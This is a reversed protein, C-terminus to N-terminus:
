PQEQVAAVRAAAVNRTVLLARFTWERHPEIIDKYDKAAGIRKGASDLLDIEVTVGFRQKDTENKLTGAAYVLTSGPTKEIKVASASFGDLTAAPKAVPSVAPKAASLGNTLTGSRPAIARQARSRHVLHRAAMLAGGVGLVGVVLIVVGAIVWKLSRRSLASADEPADLMLETKWGCHPCPVTMGIGEAPFEIRGGCQACICKLFKKESM